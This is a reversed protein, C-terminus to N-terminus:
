RFSALTQSLDVLSSGVLQMSLQRHQLLAFIEMVNYSSLSLFLLHTCAAETIV